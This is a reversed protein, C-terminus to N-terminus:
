PAVGTNQPAHAYELVEEEFVEGAAAAPVPPVHVHEATVAVDNDTSRHLYSVISFTDDLSIAAPEIANELVRRRHEVTTNRVTDARLVASCCAFSNSSNGLGIGRGRLVEASRPGPESNGALERAHHTPVTITVLSGPLPDINVTRKGLVAHRV